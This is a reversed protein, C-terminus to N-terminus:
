LGHNLEKSYMVAWKPACIRHSYDSRLSVAVTNTDWHAQSHLFVQTFPM